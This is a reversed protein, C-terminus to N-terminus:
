HLQRQRGPRDFLRFAWVDQQALVGLPLALDVADAPQDLAEGGGGDGGGFVIEADDADRARLPLRPAAARAVGGEAPAAGVLARRRGLGADDRFPLVPFPDITEEGRDNRDSGGRLDTESTMRVVGVRRRAVA